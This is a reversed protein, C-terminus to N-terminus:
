VTRNGMPLTGNTLTLLHGWERNKGRLFSLLQEICGVWHDERSLFEEAKHRIGEDELESIVERADTFIRRLGEPSFIREFLGISHDRTLVEFGRKELFSSLYYISPYASNLQVFPPQVLIIKM